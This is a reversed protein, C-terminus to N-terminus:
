GLLCEWDRKVSYWVLNVSSRKSKSAKSQGPYIVLYINKETRFIHCYCCPSLHICSLSRWHAHSQWSWYITKSPISSMIQAIEDTYHDEPPQGLMSYLEDLAPCIRAGGQAAREAAEFCERLPELDVQWILYKKDLSWNCKVGCFGRQWLLFHSSSTTMACLSGPATVVRSKLLTHSTLTSKM